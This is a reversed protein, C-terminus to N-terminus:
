PLLSYAEYGFENWDIDSSVFRVEIALSSAGATMSAPISFDDERWSHNFNSGATLWEGALAGNVYVQARQNGTGQNLLRRLVVGDNAPDVKLTFKSSGMQARGSSTLSDICFEGEWTSTFVGSWTSDTSQYGHAAESLVDGVVLTDAPVLWPRPQRYYYVLSSAVTDENDIPGHQISLRAHSRFPIADSVFFRYAAVADMSPSAVHAVNGHTPRAFPGRNFYFGGNFFDETGTGLVVPTRAGDILVREDGELYVRPLCSPCIAHVETFVVGVVKGAGATDLLTLDSGTLSVQKRYDVAFTGVGDFGFPFPRQEVRATLGEVKALGRNAIAVHAHHAFPMPFDLYLTGDPRLGAMLGGSVGTGLDGLAFLSGIPALVSPPTENDWAISVWLQNLLDATPGPGPTFAGGDPGADVEPTPAMGPVRLEIASLEGPGDVDYLARVEEPDLDFSIATSAAGPAPEAPAEAATATDWLARAASLDESGTWTAIQATAPFAHYDINDYLNKDPTVTIRLSTAFPLPVYSVYGGSSVTADIALPATFPPQKGDFLDILPVSLRPTAEDDFTFNVTDKADFGTFWMRYVCGPGRADLLIWNGDADVGYANGYDANGGSRDYSSAHRAQEDARLFPLGALDTLASAGIASPPTLLAPAAAGAEAFLLAPGPTLASGAGTRPAYTLSPAAADAASENPTPESSAGCAATASAVVVALTAVIARARSGHVDRAACVRPHFRPRAAM